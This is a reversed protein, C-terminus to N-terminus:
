LFYRRQPLLAVTPTLTVVTGGSDLTVTAPIQGSFGELILALTTSNVTVASVRESFTVTIVPNLAVGTAGDPPNVGEVFPPTTDPTASAGTQFGSTFPPLANGAVDTVGDLRLTYTNSIALDETPDLTVVQNADSLSLTAPVLGSGSRLTVTTANVTLPNLPESLRVVVPSSVPVNTAGNPPSVAVVEPATTDERQEGTIFSIGASFTNGATDTMGGIGVGHVTNPALLVA